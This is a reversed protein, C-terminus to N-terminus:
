RPKAGVGHLLTDVIRDALADPDAAEAAHVTEDMMAIYVRRAWILDADPRIIGAEQARRLGLDCAAFVEDQIRAASEDLAAQGLAFPWSSKVRLVNATAQHLAVLPPATAPRADRVADGVQRWAAEVMSSILADRSSFRRHITTRAVGAAEAIQEMTAAPDASLLREAAELINRANRKADARLPGQERTQEAM